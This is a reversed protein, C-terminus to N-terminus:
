REQFNTQLLFQLEEQTVEVLEELNNSVKTLMYNEIEILTINFITAVMKHLPLNEKQTNKWKKKILYEWLNDVSIINNGSYRFESIKSDLVPLLTTYLDM